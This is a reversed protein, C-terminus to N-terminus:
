CSRIPRRRTTAGCGSRPLSSARELGAERALQVGLWASLNAVGAGALVADADLAVVREALYRAGWVAAREWANAPSTSIPLSRRSTPTGRTPRRGQRAADRVRESGLQAVWQEQTEVDLM